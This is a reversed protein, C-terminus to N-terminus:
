AALTDYPSLLSIRTDYYHSVNRGTLEDEHPSETGFFLGFFGAGFIFAFSTATLAGDGLFASTLIVAAL